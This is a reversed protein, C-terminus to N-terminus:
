RIHSLSFMDSLLNLQQLKAVWRERAHTNDRQAAPELRARNLLNATAETNKKGMAEERDAGRAMMEKEKPKVTPIAKRVADHLCIKIM